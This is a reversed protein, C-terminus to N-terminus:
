VEIRGNAAGGGHRLDKLTAELMAERGPCTIMVGAFRKSVEPARGRAEEDAEKLWYPTM